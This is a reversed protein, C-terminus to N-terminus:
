SKCIGKAIQPDASWKPMCNECFSVGTLATILMHYTKLNIINIVPKIKFACKPEM